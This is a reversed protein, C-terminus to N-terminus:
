CNFFFNKCGGDLFNYTKTGPLTSESTDEFCEYERKVDANSLFVGWGLSQSEEDCFDILCSRGVNNQERTTKKRLSLEGDM